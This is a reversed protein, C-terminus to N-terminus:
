ATSLMVSGWRRNDDLVKNNGDKWFIRNKCKGTSSSADNICFEVGILRNNVIPIGGPFVAIEVRYGAEM